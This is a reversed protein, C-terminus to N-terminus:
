VRLCVGCACLVCGIECVGVVCVYVCVVCFVCVMGCVYVVCM